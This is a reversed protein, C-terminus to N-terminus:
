NEKNFHEYIKQVINNLEINIFFEILLVFVIIGSSMMMWVIPFLLVQIIISFSNLCHLAAVVSIAMAVFISLILFVISSVKLVKRIFSEEYGVSDKVGECGKKIKINNITLNM